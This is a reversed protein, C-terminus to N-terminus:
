VPGIARLVSASVSRLRPVILGLFHRRVENGYWALLMHDNFPDGAALPVFGLQLLHRVADPSDLPHKILWERELGRLDSDAHTPTLTAPIRLFSTASHWAREWTIQRAVPDPPSDDLFPRSVDHFGGFPQGPSVFASDPTAQPTPQTSVQEPVPFVTSFIQRHAKTSPRHRSRM